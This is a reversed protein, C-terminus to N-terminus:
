HLQWLDTVASTLETLQPASCLGGAEFTSVPQPCHAQGPSSCFPLFFVASAAKLAPHTVLDSWKQCSIFTLSSTQLTCQHSTSPSVPTLSSLLFTCVCMCVPSFPLARVIFHMLCRWILSPHLLKLNLDSLLCRDATHFTYKKICNQLWM